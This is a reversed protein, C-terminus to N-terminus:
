VVGDDVTERSCAGEAVNKEGVGRHKAGVGRWVGVCEGTEDLSAGREVEERVTKGEMLADDNIPVGRIGVNGSRKDVKIGFKPM